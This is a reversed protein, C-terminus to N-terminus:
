EGFQSNQWVRVWTGRKMDSCASKDSKVSLRPSQRTGKRHDPSSSARAGAQLALLKAVREAVTEEADLDVVEHQEQTQTTKRVSVSRLVRTATTKKVRSSRTGDESDYPRTGSGFQGELIELAERLEGREREAQAKGAGAEAITHKEEPVKYGGERSDARRQTMALPNTMPPTTVPPRRAKGKEAKVLGGAKKQATAEIRKALAAPNAAAQASHQQPLTQTPIQRVQPLQDPQFTVPQQQSGGLLAALQMIDTGRNATSLGTNLGTGGALPIVSSSGLVLLPDLSSPQM